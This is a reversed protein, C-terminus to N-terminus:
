MCWFFGGFTPFFYAHIWHSSVASRESRKKLLKLNDGGDAIVGGLFALGYIHEMPSSYKGVNAMFLDVM